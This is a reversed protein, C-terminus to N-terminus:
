PGALRAVMGSCRGAEVASQSVVIGGRYCVQACPSQADERPVYELACSTGGPSGAAAVDERALPQCRRVFNTLAVGGWDGQIALQYPVGCAMQELGDMHVSFAGSGCRSDGSALVQNDQTLLSWGLAAGNHSRNCLGSVDAANLDDHLQVESAAFQIEVKNYDDIVRAGPTTSASSNATPQVPACNQFHFLVIGVLVSM